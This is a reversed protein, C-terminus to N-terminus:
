LDSEVVTNEIIKWRNNKICGKAPLETALPVYGLNQTSLYDYLICVIEDRKDEELVEVAELLYGIRRLQGVSGLRKALDILEYGNMSEVLEALVTAAHNLGGVRDLYGILDIATLEPSAVNLYGTAVPRKNVPCHEIDKKFIMEIQLKGMIYDNRAQYSSVVQYKMPRQHAAGHYAAATLLGAYYPVALHDMIIVVAEEAPICGFARHEAAVIIYLGKLPSVLAGKKKARYVASKLSGESVGLQVMAEQFTFFKKGQALRGDIYHSLM